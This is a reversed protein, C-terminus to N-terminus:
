NLQGQSSTTLHMFILNVYIQMDVLSATHRYKMTPTFLPVIEMNQQTTVCSIFNISDSWHGANM